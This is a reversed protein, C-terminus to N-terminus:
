KKKGGLPALGKPRGMADWPSDSSIRGLPRLGNFSNCQFGGGSSDGGKKLPALRHPPKASSLGGASSGLPAIRHPHRARASSRLPGPDSHKGELEEREESGLSKGEKEPDMIINHRTSGPSGAPSLSGTEESTSSGTAPDDSVPAGEWVSFKKFFSHPKCGLTYGRAKISIDPFTSDLLAHEGEGEDLIVYLNNATYVMSLLVGQAYVKSCVVEIEALPAAGAETLQLEFYVNRGEGDIWPKQGKSVLFDRLKELEESANMLQEVVFDAAVELHALAQYAKSRDPLTELETSFSMERQQGAITPMVDKVMELTMQGPDVSFDVTGTYCWGGFRFFAERQTPGSAGSAQGHRVSPSLASGHKFVIYTQGGTSLGNADEDDNADKSKRGAPSGAGKGFFRSDGGGSPSNKPSKSPSSAAPSGQWICLKLFHPHDFTGIQCGGGKRSMDPFAVDLLPQDGQGEALTAYISGDFYILVMIVGRVYTKSAAIEVGAYAKSDPSMQLEFYESPAEGAIIKKSSSEMAELAKDSHALDEMQELSRIAEPTSAQEEIFAAARTLHLLARRFSNGKKLRSFENVYRLSSQQAQLIPIAMPIDSLAMSIQGLDVEGDYCWNGCRVFVSRRTTSRSPKRVVYTQHYGERFINDDKGPGGGAVEEEEDDSVLGEELDELDATKEAAQGSLPSFLLDMKAWQDHDKYQELPFNKHPNNVKPFNTDLLEHEGIADQLTILFKGDHYLICWLINELFVKAVIMEVNGMKAVYEKTAELELYFAGFDDNIWATMGFESLTRLKEENRLLESQVFRAAATADKVPQSFQPFVKLDHDRCLFPMSGQRQQLVKLVLSFNDLTLVKVGLNTAEDRYCFKGFRFLVDRTTAGFKAPKLIVYTQDM